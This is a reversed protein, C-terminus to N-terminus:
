PMAHDLAILSYATALVPLEEWWRPSKTNSWFGERFGVRLLHQSLEERWRHSKGDADEVEELGSADLAKAMTFYYYYLGQYQAAPDAERDFGPNYELTYNRRIWNLAAQVRSDELPLGAFLYCKLLAYTMSGYSRAVVTGEEGPDYGAKSDGPHYMGGGDTGAKVQRGDGREVTMRNIEPSNQCRELFVLARQFSADDAPVGGEKLAELGFQTNSLDPRLDGGYGIGGYAWDSESDYGEGEDSQVTRLYEVAKQIVAQDNERGASQLAFVAASTTYVKVSGAHISGDEQQLSVLWDLGEFAYEPAPSQLRKCTRLVATLCMATIGPDIRGMFGFRGEQQERSYFQLASRAAVAYNSALDGDWEHPTGQISPAPSAGSAAPLHKKCLSWLRCAAALTRTDASALGSMGGLRELLSGSVGVSWHGSSKWLDADLNGTQQGVVLSEHLKELLTASVSGSQQWEEWVQAVPQPPVEELRPLSAAWKHLSDEDYAAALQGVLRRDHDSFDKAGSESHLWELAERLFPGDSPGYQRHSQRYALLVVATTPGDGYAGNELQRDRLIGLGGDVLSKLDPQQAFAGRAATFLVASIMFALRATSVIGRVRQGVNGTPHWPKSVIM